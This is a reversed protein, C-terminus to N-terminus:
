VPTPTNLDHSPPQNWRERLEAIQKFTGPVISMFLRESHIPPESHVAATAEDGVDFVTAQGELATQNDEPNVLKGIEQRNETTDSEFSRLLKYFRERLTQPLDNLLTKSGKVALAIKQQRTGDPTFFWGDTHWRPTDYQDTPTFSRLTFWAAEARVASLSDKVVQDLVDAVRGSLDPANGVSELFNAIDNRLTDIQGFNSYDKHENVTLARMDVLAEPALGLDFNVFSKPQAAAEAVAKYM